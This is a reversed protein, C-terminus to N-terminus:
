TSLIGNKRGGRLIIEDENQRYMIVHFVTPVPAKNFSTKM